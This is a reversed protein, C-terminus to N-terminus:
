GVNRSILLNSISLVFGIPWWSILIPSWSGLTARSRRRGAAMFWGIGMGPKSRGPAVKGGGSGVDVGETM